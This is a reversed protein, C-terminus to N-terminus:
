QLGMYSMSSELPEYGDWILDELDAVLCRLLLDAIRVLLINTGRWGVSGKSVVTPLRELVVGVADSGVTRLADRACLTELLYIVGVIRERVGCAAAVVVGGAAVLGEGAARGVGRGGVEFVLNGPLVITTRTTSEAAERPASEAEAACGPAVCLLRVVAEAIILEAPHELLHQALLAHGLAIVRMGRALEPTHNPARAARRHTEDNAVQRPRDGSRHRPIPQTRNPIRASLAHITHELLQRLRVLRPHQTIKRGFHKRM